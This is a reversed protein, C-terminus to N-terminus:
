PQLRVGPKQIEPILRGTFNVLGRLLTQAAPSTADLGSPLLGSVIVYAWRHNVGQTFRDWSSSLVRELHDDTTRNKGVFWYIFFGTTTM